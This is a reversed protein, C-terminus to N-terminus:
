PQKELIKRVSKAAESPIRFLFPPACPAQLITLADPEPNLLITASPGRLPPKPSGAYRFAMLFQQNPLSTPEGFTSKDWTAIFRQPVNGVPTEDVLVEFRAYDGLISRNPDSYMERLHEPLDPNSLKKERFAVDRVIEYNAVTGLVVVDAFSIDSVNLDASVFCAQASSTSMVIGAILNKLFHKRM